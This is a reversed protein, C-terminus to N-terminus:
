SNAAAGATAGITAIMAAQTERIVDRAAAAIPTAEALEKARARAARRDSRPVLRDLVATAGVLAVLAAERDGAPRGGGLVDRVADALPEVVQTAAVRHRTVPFLGLVKREEPVLLGRSVLLDRVQERRATTGM